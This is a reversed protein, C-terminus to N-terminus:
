RKSNKDAKLKAAAIALGALAEALQRSQPFTHTAKALNTKTSMKTTKLQTKKLLYFVIAQRIIASVSEAGTTKSLNCVKRYIEDNLKISIIKTKRTNM